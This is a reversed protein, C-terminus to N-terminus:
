GLCVQAESPLGGGMGPVARSMPSAWSPPRLLGPSVASVAPVYRANRSAATSTTRRGNAPMSEAAARGDIARSMEAARISALRSAEARRAASAAETLRSSRSRQPDRERGFGDGHRRPGAEAAGGGSSGLVGMLESDSDM